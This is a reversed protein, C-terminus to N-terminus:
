QQPIWLAAHQAGSVTSSRGAIQGSTNIAFALSSTGGLTGLDTLTGKEWIFAHLDGVEPVVNYGAVQAKLNIGHAAIPGMNTISGNKWLVNGGVVQGRGNIAEAASFQGGAGIDTMVGREWLFAHTSGDEVNAYGVVQGKANIATAISFSGGPLTGLDTMVGAQWLFAHTSGDTTNSSGVIQGTPSIGYAESSGGGLTGLFTKVGNDWLFAHCCGDTRPDETSSSVAVQGVDNIAKGFSNGGELTGLDTMVGDAWLFAHTAGSAIASSGVVKGSANIAMGESHSGGLTGLDVATYTHGAQVSSANSTPNSSPQVPNQDECASVTLGVGCALTLISIARM